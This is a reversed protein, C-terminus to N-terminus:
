PPSGQRPSRHAFWWEGLAVLLALTALLAWYDHETQIREDAAVVVEKVLLKDVTTLRTQRGDLLSVGIASSRGPAHIRYFGARTAGIGSVLGDHDAHAAITGGDPREISVLQDPSAHVWPLLGTQSGEVADQGSAHLSLNVLNGAMVPFGLRYPLTSLDSHFLLHYATSSGRQRSLLLPGRDGYVMVTFGKAELEKEGQGPAFAIRQNIVLDELAVHSLLPDTKRYDVVSSGGKEECSVYGALEPPIVGISLSIMAPRELDAPQDSVVLDADGAAGDVLQVQLQAALARRWSSLGEAVWTRVPRLAPLAIFAQNDADLADFDDCVLRLELQCANAGDILFSIREEGGPAPALPKSSVVMGEQRLELTASGTAQAASAVAVFLEWRGDGRRQASCATIGINTTAAPVRQYDLHFALDADVLDPLVGDSVLLARDFPMSRGMAQALQLAAAPNAPVDEVALRGLADSLERHDDSFGTLRRTDQGMAILCLQQDSGLDDILRQVVKRAEDLRTAGGRELRAGMSAGVDILIPLRQTRETQGHSFPQMAAVVLLALILLQLLLLLNRRFRQFPANVRQDNMVQRWLVLSPLAVQERKLKLFYVAVLPVALAALWAAAPAHVGLLNM